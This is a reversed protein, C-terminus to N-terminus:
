DKKDRFAKPSMGTMRKFFKGFFSIDPFNLEDSIEQIDKETSQLLVKADLAIYEDIWQKPTKDSMENIVTSLYKSTVFLEDAYYKVSHYERHEEEVKQLFANFLAKKRNSGQPEIRRETLIDICEFATSIVLNKIIQYHYRNDKTVKIKEQIHRFSKKIQEFDEGDRKQFPSQKAHQFLQLSDKVQSMLDNMMDMSCAICLPKIDDSISIVHIIQGPFAVFICGKELDYTTTNVEITSHGKEILFLVLGQLYFYGSTDLGEINEFLVIKGPVTNSQKLFDLLSLDAKKINTVNTPKRKM